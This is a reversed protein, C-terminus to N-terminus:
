LIEPIILNGLNNISQMIECSVSSFHFLGGAASSTM